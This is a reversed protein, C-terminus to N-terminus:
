GHGRSGPNERIGHTRPLPSQRRPTGSSEIAQDQGVIRRRLASEFERADNSRRSPDLMTSLATKM